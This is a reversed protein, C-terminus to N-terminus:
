LCLMISDTREHNISATISFEIMHFLHSNTGNSQLCHKHTPISLKVSEEGKNNDKGDMTVNVFVAYLTAM